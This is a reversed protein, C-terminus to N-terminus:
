KALSSFFLVFNPHKAVFIEEKEVAHEIGGVQAKRKGRALISLHSLCGSALSECLPKELRGESHEFNGLSALFCDLRCSNLWPVEGATPFASLPFEALVTIPFASSSDVLPYWM